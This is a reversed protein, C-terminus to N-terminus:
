KYVIKSVSLPMCISLSVTIIMNDFDMSSRIDQFSAALLGHSSQAVVSLLLIELMKGIIYKVFIMSLM